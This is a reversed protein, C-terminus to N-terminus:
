RVSAADDMAVNFGAINHDGWGSLHLDEVKTQCFKEVFFSCAGGSYMVSFQGFNSNGVASGRVCSRFLCSSVFDVRTCINKCSADQKVFHQRAGPREFSFCSDVNTM